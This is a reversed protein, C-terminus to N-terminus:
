PSIPSAASASNLAIGVHAALKPPTKAPLFDGAIDCMVFSSTVEALYETTEIYHDKM